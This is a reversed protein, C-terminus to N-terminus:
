SKIKSGCLPCQVKLLKQYEEKLNKLLNRKQCLLEKGKIINDIIEKLREKKRKSVKRYEIKTRLPGLPPPKPIQLLDELRRINDVIEQLRDRSSRTTKWAVIAKLAERGKKLSPRLAKIGERYTRIHETVDQLRGCKKEVKLHQAYKIEIKNLLSHAEKTWVLKLGEEKIGKKRDKIVGLEANTKRVISDMSSQVDDIASLDVIKNLQRSVEGPTDKFWLPNDHQDQFNIKQVNLVEEVPGPVKGKGFAKLPNGNLIYLNTAKGKKRVITTNEDVVLTVTAERAGDRIFDGKRPPENLMVWRLARLVASKGSDTAGVITTIHPDFEITLDKHKQFNQIRISIM